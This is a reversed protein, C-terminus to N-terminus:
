LVGAREKWYAVEARAAKLASELAGVRRELEENKDEVALLASHMGRAEARAATADARAAAADERALRLDARLENRIDEADQKAQREAEAQRNLEDKKEEKADDGHKFLREVLKLLLGGFMGILASAVGIIIENM